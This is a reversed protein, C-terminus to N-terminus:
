SFDFQQKSIYNSISKLFADVKTKLMEAGADYPKQKKNSNNDKVLKQLMRSRAARPFAIEVRINEHNVRALYTVSENALRDMKLQRRRVIVPDLKYREEPKIYNKLLKGKFYIDRCQEPKDNLWNKRVPVSITGESLSRQNTHWKGLVEKSNIDASQEDKFQGNRLRENSQIEFKNVVVATDGPLAPLDKKDTILIEGNLSNNYKSSKDGAHPEAEKSQEESTPLSFSVRSRSRILSKKSTDKRTEMDIKYVKPLTIVRPMFLDHRKELSYLEELKSEFTLRESDAPQREFKDATDGTNDQVDVKNDLSMIIPYRCERIDGCVSNMESVCDKLRVDNRETSSLQKDEEFKEETFVPNKQDVSCESQTNSRKRIVCSKSRQLVPQPRFEGFSSKRGSMNGRVGTQNITLAAESQSRWTKCKPKPLPIVAEKYKVNYTTEMASYAWLRNFRKSIDFESNFKREINPVPSDGSTLGTDESEAQLMTRQKATKDHYFGCEDHIRQLKRRLLKDEFRNKTFARVESDSFKRNVM